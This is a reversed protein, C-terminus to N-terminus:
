EGLIAINREYTQNNKGSIKITVLKENVEFQVTQINQLFVEHGQRNLRRRIMNQYHEYSAKDDNQLIIILEGDNVYALKANHIERSIQIFFLEVEKHHLKEHHPHKFYSLIFPILVVLISLVFLSFITEYLTFGRKNTLLAVM